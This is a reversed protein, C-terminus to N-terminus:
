MSSLMQIHQDGNLSPEPNTTQRRLPLVTTPHSAETGSIDVDSLTLWRNMPEAVEIVTTMRKPIIPDVTTQNVSKRSPAKDTM